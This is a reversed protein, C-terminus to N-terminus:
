IMEIDSWQIPDGKSINKVAKMGIIKKMHKPEIGKIPRTISLMKKELLTGSSIDCGAFISRRIQTILNIDEVPKKKMIGKASFVIKTSNVLKNFEEPDSSLSHDPGDLTKDLTFHKEIIQAGYSWAVELSTLNNDPSVHDSYGIIYKNFKKKLTEIFMLNANEDKTPYNLVCHMICVQEKPLKLTKLAFKIEDLQSAGTSLLIPKKKSSIAKLLPVNTIDASAIKFLPLYKSYLPISQIDFLTTLFTINKRKCQEIIKLYEKFNFKDYKDFLKRQTKTKEKTLDWYAPSNKIVLDNSKYTQFKVAEVGCIKADSILKYAKRMDCDHNVGAEAIITPKNKYLRLGGFKKM